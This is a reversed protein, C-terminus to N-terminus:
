RPPTTAARRALERWGIDRRFHKGAFQVQEAANRSVTAAAELTAGVGTVALVRGGDTLLRDNQRVTGAHFLRVDSREELDAPIHIEGGKAVTGPYGEAALVTTVAAGPAWTLEHGSLSGGRAIALMPELLPSQLLPLLAQTEPDGFRANFEIVMPGEQTLMLGAYLLGKFPQGDRRLTELVPQIIEALVRERLESSDISIPAYAGMGGTNPGTDGEGVRKHDQAAPMLLANRGDTLAFISLEEGELFSEIVIESGADGFARESLMARAAQVAEAVTACVVAGKGAALGSAKVVLPAGHSRIFSEAAAFASFTEFAATPVGARKMLQKAYAKSSEIRAAGASPAFIALGRRAFQHQIGEALPGEPGVVTLDIEQADAWAALPAIDTPSFPLAQALRATGGNGRTIFRTADPADRALVHLLAHERGGHGVILLKM